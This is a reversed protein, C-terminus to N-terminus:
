DHFFLLQNDQVLLAIGHSPELQGPISAPNSLLTGQGAPM